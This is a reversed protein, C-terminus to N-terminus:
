SKAVKKKSANRKGKKAKAKLNELEILRNAALTRYDAAQQKHMDREGTAYELSFTLHKIQDTAKDLLDSRERLATLSTGIMEALDDDPSSPDENLAAHIDDLATRAAACKGASHEVAGAYNSAITKIEARAQDQRAKAADFLARDLFPEVNESILAAIVDPQLADLEWSEPGHLAIYKAARCDTIKAPNPPPNYRRIQDMNLAIRKVVPAPWGDTECFMALRDTIDRTMDLGSPDHDGLHLIVVSTAGDQQYGEIRRAAGWMESQSTYGRCSFFPVDFSKASRGIVDVLADKEVWVKVRTPQGEWLDYNFQAAAGSVIEAPNNWHPLARVARTRDVIADWDILGALRADSITAGVNDYSQENNPIVARSVLQYYLQRLTLSYGKDSWEAIIENCLNILKLTANRFKKEQYCILPM